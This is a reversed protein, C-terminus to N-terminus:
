KDQYVGFYKRIEEKSLGEQVLKKGELYRNRADKPKLFSGIRFTVGKISIKAVYKKYIKYYGVPSKREKLYREVTFGKSIKIRFPDYSVKLRKAWGMMTDKVGNYELLVIGRKNKAQMELSIWECNKKCYDGDNDIREISLGQKYSSAMDEYFGVFDMWNKCVKIGRGGYNKYNKENKNLCRRKIGSWKKYLSTTSQNHTKM